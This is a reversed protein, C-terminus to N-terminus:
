GLCVNWNDIGGAKGFGPQAAPAGAERNVSNGFFIVVGVQARQAQPLGLNMFISGQLDNKM